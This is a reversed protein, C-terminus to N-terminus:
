IFPEFTSENQPVEVQMWSASSTKNYSDAILLLSCHNKIGGQTIFNAQGYTKM